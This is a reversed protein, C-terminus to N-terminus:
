GRAVGIVTSYVTLLLVQPGPRCLRAADIEAELFSWAREVLPQLAVDGPHRGSPLPM